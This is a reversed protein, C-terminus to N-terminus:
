DLGKRKRTTKLRFNSASADTDGTGTADAGNVMVVLHEDPGIVVEHDITLRKMKGVDAFQKVTQYNCASLIPKADENAVDRRVVRIQTTAPMEAADDGVLYCSIIDGPKLKVTTNLPVKFDWIDAFTAGLGDSETIGTTNQNLEFAEEKYM